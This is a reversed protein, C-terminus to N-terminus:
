AAPLESPVMSPYVSAGKQLQYGCALAQWGAQGLPSQPARSGFDNKAERTRVQGRLSDSAQATLFQL